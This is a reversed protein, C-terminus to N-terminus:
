PMDTALFPTPKFWGAITFKKQFHLAYGGLAVIDYNMNQLQDMDDGNYACTGIHLVNPTLHLVMSARNSNSQFCGGNM